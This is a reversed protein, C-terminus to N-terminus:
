VIGCRDEPDRNRERQEIAALRREVLRGRKLGCRVGPATEYEDFGFLLDRRCLGFNRIGCGSGPSCTAGTKGRGEFCGADRRNAIGVALEALEVQDLRLAREGLGTRGIDIREHGIAAGLGSQRSQHFRCGVQSGPLSAAAM